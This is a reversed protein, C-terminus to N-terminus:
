GQELLVSLNVKHMLFVFFFSVVVVKVLIKNPFQLSVFLM